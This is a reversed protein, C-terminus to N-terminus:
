QGGEGANQARQPPPHPLSEPDGYSREQRVHFWLGVTGGVLGALLAFLSHGVRLFQDRNAAGPLASRWRNAPAVSALLDEGSTSNYVSNAVTRSTVAGDSTVVRFLVSSPDARSVDFTAISSSVVRAHVYELLHTTGLQPQFTDSLWPGIALALYGGGFFAFGAWWDREKGRLIVAGMVAVGVAALAVLLLMGAWLENANRLAALGVAFVVILVILSRISFRRM